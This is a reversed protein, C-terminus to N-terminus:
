WLGFVIMAVLLLGAFVPLKGRVKITALAIAVGLVPIFWYVMVLTRMCCDPLMPFVYVLLMTGPLLLVFIFVSSLIFTKALAAYHRVAIARADGGRADDVAATAAADNSRAILMDLQRAIYAAPVFLLVSAALLEPSAGGTHKGAMIAGAAILVAAITDNPPLYTGMPFRDIWLLETIAGAMLGTLPDGLALGILPATIVPRSLMVQLVIRDLCLFGGLLAAEAASIWMDSLGSQRGWTLRAVPRESETGERTESPMRSRYRGTV